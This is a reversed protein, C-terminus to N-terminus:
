SLIRVAGDISRGVCDTAARAPGGVACMFLDAGDIDFRRMDIDWRRDPGLLVGNFQETKHGMMGLRAAIEACTDPDGSAAICFGDEDALVMAELGGQQHCTELQYALAVQPDDSRRRRRETPYSM